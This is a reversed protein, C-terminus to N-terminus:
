VFWTAVLCVKALGTIATTTWGAINTLRSNTRHGMLQRDHTMLMMMLLRLPVSFGQVIGSWVLAKMPNFGLFNLAAALATLAIITGYFFKAQGPQAHLTARKGLGQALDHAGGRAPHLHRFWLVVLRLRAIPPLPMLTFAPSAREPAVGTMVFSAVV